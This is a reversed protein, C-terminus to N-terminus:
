HRIPSRSVADHHTRSTRYPTTSSDRLSKPARSFIPIMSFAELGPNLTSQRPEQPAQENLAAKPQEERAPPPLQRRARGRAGHKRARSWGGRVVHRLPFPVSLRHRRLFAVLLLVQVLLNGEVLILLIILYLAAESRPAGGLIVAHPADEEWFLANRHVCMVLM